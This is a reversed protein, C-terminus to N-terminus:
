NRMPLATPKRLAAPGSGTRSSAQSARPHMDRNPQHPTPETLQSTQVPRCRVPRSLDLIDLFYVDPHCLDLDFLDAGPRYVWPNPDRRPIRHEGLVSWYRPPCYRDIELRIRSDEERFQKALLTSLSLVTHYVGSAPQVRLVAPASCARYQDLPTYPLRTFWRLQRRLQRGTPYSFCRGPFDTLRAFEGRTADLPQSPVMEWLPSSLYMEVNSRASVANHFVEVARALPAFDIIDPAYIEV